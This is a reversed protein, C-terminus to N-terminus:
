AAWVDSVEAIEHARVLVERLSLEALTNSDRLLCPIWPQSTLDFTPRPTQM